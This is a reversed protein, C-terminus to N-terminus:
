TEGVSSRYRRPRRRLLRTKKEELYALVKRSRSGPSLDFKMARTNGHEKWWARGEDTKMLDSIRESSKLADPLKRKESAHLKADYGFRPWVHYGIDTDSRSATTKIYSVGAEAAQEVMRGFVQPGRIGKGRESKAVDFEKAEIYTRYKDDKAITRM